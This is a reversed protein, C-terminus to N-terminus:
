PEAMDNWQQVVVVVWLLQYHFASPNTLWLYAASAKSGVLFSPNPRPFGHEKPFELSCICTLYMALAPLPRM